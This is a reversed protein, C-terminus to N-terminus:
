PRRAPGRCDHGRAKRPPATSAPAPMAVLMWAALILVDVQSNLATLAVGLLSTQGRVLEVVDRDGLSLFHDFFRAAVGILEPLVLHPGPVFPRVLSTLAPDHLLM